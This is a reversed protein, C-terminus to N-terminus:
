KGPNTPELLAVVLSLMDVMPSYFSLTFAVKEM